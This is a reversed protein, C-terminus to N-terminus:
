TAEETSPLKAKKEAERKAKLEARKRDREAKLKAREDSWAKAMDISEVHGTPEGQFNNKILSEDAMADLSFQLGHCNICTTRVMKENPRLNDNQNHQVFVNKNADTERPLHCTACSVGTDADADGNLEDQWLQFHSSNKYALSHQDNHCQLCGEAAAFQTDFRHGSHCAACTLESHFRSHNMPLRAEGPTMPPLGVSMKMGHRSALFGKVQPEHCAQCSDHTLKGFWTGDDGGHCDICNVGAAAHATSAWDTLLQQDVEVEAPADQDTASLPQRNPNEEAWVAALNRVPQQPEDLLNPEGFHDVLFNEFLARNDHYNHCGATACSDFALDKHSPRQEGVDQHCHWCYDAPLSLGMAQTRDPVHEEHCSICSRGDLKKVLHAKGPDTFKSRPHTDTSRKLDEAHCKTCADQLVGMGPSHCEQCQLEIQYHGHTTVGPLFTRAAVQPQAILSYALFGVLGMTVVLWVIWQLKTSM